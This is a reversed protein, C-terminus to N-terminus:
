PGILIQTFTDGANPTSDNNTDVWEYVYASSTYKARNPILESQAYYGAAVTGPGLIGAGDFCLTGSQPEVSLQVYFFDHQATLASVPTNVVANGARTKIQATTGDTWLYVPTLASEMYAVGNQGYSGGGTIFTDGVGTIPRGSGPDLIGDSHQSTQLLSVAPTCDATLAGGMASGAGNDEQYPDFAVTALANDCVNALIAEDCATGTCFQSTTCATGCQGCNAPDKATDTCYGGCCAETPPGACSAASLCTQRPPPPAADVTSEAGDSASDAGNAGDSASDAGDRAPDPGGDRVSATAHPDSSGAAKDPAPTASSASSCHALSGFCGLVLTLGAARDLQTTRM